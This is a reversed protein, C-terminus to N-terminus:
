LRTRTSSIQKEHHAESKAKAGRSASRGRGGRQAILIDGELQALLAAMPGLPNLARAEFLDRRASEIKKRALRTKARLYYAKTLQEQREDLEDSSLPRALRGGSRRAGEDRAAWLGIAITLQQASEQHCGLQALSKARNTYLTSQLLLHRDHVPILVRWPAGDFIQIREVDPRYMAIEAKQGDADVSRVSGLVLEGGQNMLVWCEEGQGPLHFQLLQDIAYGYWEAAADYDGLRFLINGEEKVQAAAAYIDDQFLVMSDAESRLEFHELPKVISAPVTEEQGDTGDPLSSYLIDISADKENVCEIMARRVGGARQVRVEKGVSILPTDHYEPKNQRVGAVGVGPGDTWATRALTHSVPKQEARSCVPRDKSGRRVAPPLSPDRDRVRRHQANRATSSPGSVLRDLLSQLM